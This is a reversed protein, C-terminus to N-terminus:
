IKVHVVSGASGAQGNAPGTGGAGPAGAAGRGGDGGDGGLSRITGNNTITRAAIMIIGGNGGYATGGGATDPNGGRSGPAGDGGAALANGPGGSGPKTPSNAGGSGYGSTSNDSNAANAGDDGDGGDNHIICSSDITLAGQVFLRSGSTILTTAAVSNDVELSKTYWDGKMLWVSGTRECVKDGREDVIVSNSSRAASGQGNSVTCDNSKLVIDGDGGAGFLRSREILFDGSTIDGDSKFEIMTSDSGGSSKNIIKVGGSEVEVRSKSNGDEGMVFKDATLQAHTTTNTRLQVGNTPDIVINEQNAAVEGLTMVNTDLNFATNGSEDTMTIDNADIVLRDRTGDNITFTGGTLTVDSGFQAINTTNNRINVGSDADIFVNRKNSAVQGLTIDTGFTSLVTTGSRIDISDNDIVVNEENSGTTGLVITSGIDAVTVDSNNRLTMGSNNIVVRAVQLDISASKANLSSIAGSSSGSIDAAIQASSSLTGAPISTAGSIESALQASSSVTGAPLSGISLTGDINLTEASADWVLKDGLSFDGATAASGGQVFFPTNSNGHTGTGSYIKNSDITIGGIEGSTATVKGTLFVNESFLGFGPSSGVLTSSIGSLDGLRAKLDVDFVGSGTREVIDIYPTTVDNPNANLRIYGTGIKGTSVVVQGPEYSASNEAVASISGSHKAGAFTATRGFSREVMIRGRLDNDNTGDRSSSLVKVYETNFGTGSVKKLLLIENQAFGTVNAVSMTTQSASIATSGTITTSNAVLLQGGVANVSEKEFVTTSLTGRIKAQEVELFGNNKASLSFGSLGSVYNSTEISGASNIILNNSSIKENDFTWGGIELRTTSLEFARNGSTTFGKIGFQDDTLQGLAVMVNDRDNDGINNKGDGANGHITILQYGADLSIGYKDETSTTFSSLRKDDFAWSSIKNGAGGPDGLLFVNNGGQTGIIGFNTSTTHFIRIRNNDDERVEITPSSADADLIIGKNSANVSELKDGDITWRAIKGGSFLVKSGTIQGTSGTIVFEKSDSFLTTSDMNFGGIKGGTFLVNSGTIKGSSGSIVLENSDSTLTNTNINFSGIEGSTAKLVGAPTVSFPASGFTAHGLQIGTDADAIFINNGSGLSLSKDTTNLVFNTATLNDSGITFGGITGGATATITGQMTVAGDDDLHFNSSSIRLKGQSGSIFTEAAGSGSIGLLFESTQVRFRSNGTGKYNSAFQLFAHEHKNTSSADVVELGVGNYTESAGIATGVSGSFLMFGGNRDGTGAITKDFGSYGVSRLYAPNVGYMELSDGILVSGTLVADEGDALVQKAGAFLVSASTVAEFDSKNNDSDYFEAVFDYRQGRRATKPMPVFTKYFGPNFNRDSIPELKVDSIYFEGANVRFVLGAKPKAGSKKHTTFYNYLIPISGSVNGVLLESANDGFDSVSGLSLVDGTQSTISGSLFVEIEASKRVSGDAQQKNKKIYYSKFSVIYEENKELEFQNKTKFEVYSGDTYNSGSVLVANMIRSNNTSIPQAASSSQWFNDVVSQSYFIGIPDNGTVSTSDKLENNTQLIFEGFKEFEKNQQDKQRGFLKVKNVDGSYTRLNGFTVDAYSTLYTSSTAPTVTTQEFEIEYELNELKDPVFQRDDELRTISIPRNLVLSTENEISFKTKWTNPVLFKALPYSGSLKAHLNVFKLSGQTLHFSFKNASNYPSASLSDLIFKPNGSGYSTTQGNGNELDEFPLGM